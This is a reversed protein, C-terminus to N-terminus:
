ADRTLGITDLWDQHLEFWTQHYSLKNPNAIYDHDGGAAQLHAHHLVRRYCEFRPLAAAADALLDLTPAHIAEFEQLLRGDYHRDRHDNPEGGRDARVQWRNTWDLFQRNLPLFRQYLDGLAGGGHERRAAEYWAARAAKGAETLMLLGRKNTRLLGEDLLAAAVGGEPEVGLHGALLEPKAALKHGVFVLAQVRQHPEPIPPM